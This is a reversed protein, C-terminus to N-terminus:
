KGKRTWLRVAAAILVGVWRDKGARNKGWPLLVLLGAVIAAGAAVVRDIVITAEGNLGTRTFHARLQGAFDKIINGLQENSSPANSDLDTNTM